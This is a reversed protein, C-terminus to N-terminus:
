NGFGESNFLELIQSDNGHNLNNKIEITLENIYPTPDSIPSQYYLFYISNSLSQIEAQIDIFMQELGATDEAKFYRDPDNALSKLAAEDLDPSALAAVYARRTGLASKAMALTVNQSANHRGDTFIVMSGDVIGDITYNDVWLNAVDIVAGYLNTSNVLSTEPIGDIANLLEQKNKSFAKVQKTDADFTYIAIQQDPMKSEVLSRAAAKIQPVFGEVSRTIDLLLVTKLEFPISSIGVRLDAESDIKGNNETVIFDDETLSSVGKGDYDSVQFLVQVTRQAPVVGVEFTKLRYFKSLDSPLTDDDKQCGISVTFLFLLALKAFTSFPKM